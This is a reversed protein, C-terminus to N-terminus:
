FAATYRLRTQRVRAENTAAVVRILEAAKRTGTDFPGHFLCQLEIQPLFGCISPRVNPLSSLHCLVVTRM